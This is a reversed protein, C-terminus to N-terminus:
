AEDGDEPQMQSDLYTECRREFLDGLAPYFNSSVSIFGRLHEIEAGGELNRVLPGLAINPIEHFTSEELQEIMQALSLPRRSTPIAVDYRSKEICDEYEDVIRYHILGDEERAARLSIVDGTTSRMSVRAIEIEGPLYDPLYEGGMFMPHIKGLFDRLDPQLIPRLLGEPPIESGGANLTDLILRRRAEGTNNGLIAVRLSDAPCYTKPRYM